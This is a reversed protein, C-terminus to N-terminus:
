RYELPYFLNVCIFYKNIRLKNLGLSYISVRIVLGVYGRVEKVGGWYNNFYHAPPFKRGCM